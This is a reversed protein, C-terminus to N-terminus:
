AQVKKTARKKVEAPKVEASANGSAQGSAQVPAPAPASAAAQVPAPVPTEVPAPASEAKPKKSRTKAPEATAAAPTGNAVPALAPAAPTEVPASAPAPTGNAAPAPAAKKRERKPKEASGVPTPAPTGNAVPAPAAKKRERKPKEASGTAPAQTQAPTPAPAAVTDVVMTQIIEDNSDSDVTSGYEELHRNYTASFDNFLHDPFRLKRRVVTETKDVKERKENLMKRSVTSRVILEVYGQNDYLMMKLVAMVARENIISVSSANAYLYLKPVFRQLFQQLVDSVLYTLQSSVHMKATNKNETDKKHSLNTFLLTGNESYSNVLRAYIHRVYSDFIQNDRSVVAVNGDSVRSWAQLNSVLCHAVSNRFSDTIDKVNVMRRDESLAHKMASLLIANAITELVSVMFLNAHANLSLKANRYQSIEVLINKNSPDAMWDDLEKKLAAKQDEKLANYTIVRKNSDDKKQSSIDGHRFRFNKQTYSQVKSSLDSLRTLLSGNLLQNIYTRARNEGIRFENTTHEVTEVADTM